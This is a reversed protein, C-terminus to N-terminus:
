AQATVHLSACMADLAEDLEPDHRHALADIFENAEGAALADFSEILRARYAAYPPEGDPLLRALAAWPLAGAVEASDLREAFDHLEDRGASGNLELTASPSGTPVGHATAAEHLLREITARLSPTEIDRPAIAYRPLRLKIFLRDFEEHLSERLPALASCHADGIAGPLFARVAFLHTVLGEFRAERLFRLTRALEDAGFGITTGVREAGEPRVAEVAACSSRRIPRGTATASRRRRRFSWSGIPRSQARSAPSRRARSRRRTRLAVRSDLQCLAPRRAGEVRAFRHVDERDGDYDLRATYAIAEGAPLGNHVVDRWGITAEVGPDVDNLM